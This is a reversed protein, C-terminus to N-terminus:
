KYLNIGKVSNLEEITDVYYRGDVNKFLNEQFTFTMSRGSEDAFYYTIRTATSNIKDALSEAKMNLLIELVEEIKRKDTILQPTETSTPRNVYVIMKTPKNDKIYEVWEKTTQGSLEVISVPFGDDNVPTKIYVYVLYGVFSVAILVILINLLKNIKEEM